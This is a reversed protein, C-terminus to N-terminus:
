IVIESKRTEGGRQFMITMIVGARLGTLARAVDDANNVRRKNIETIVDGPKLGAKEGLSGSAVEGIVAGSVATGTKHAVRSADAVKLGFRPKNGNGRALLSKIRGQDFGIVSQGDIVVVPVGMQGTLRVM